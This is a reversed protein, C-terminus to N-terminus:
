RRRDRRDVRIPIPARAPEPRLLALFFDVIGTLNVSM